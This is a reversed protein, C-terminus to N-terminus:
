LLTVLSALAMWLLILEGAMFAITRHPMLARAYFIAHFIRAIPFGAFCIWLGASSPGALAYVLGVLVFPLGAELDNQHIRRAREVDPDPGPAPTKGQLAYDEPAAFVGKRMRLVSTYVGAGMTKLAVVISALAWAHVAPQSLLENM